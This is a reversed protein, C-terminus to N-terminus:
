QGNIVKKNEAVHLGVIAGSTVIYIPNIMGNFLSDIMFLIVVLSLVIPVRKSFGTDKFKNMESRFVLWPGILMASFLAILGFYGKSSFAILWLSDITTMLYEGTHPDVARGRGYGGWGFLPRELARIAYLDEQSLRFALSEVREIDFIYAATTEIDHASIFGTSRLSIYFPVTLLLLLFLIHTKSYRHIFYCGCGVVLAFWGNASKCLVSTIVLAMVIFPM